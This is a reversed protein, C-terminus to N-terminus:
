QSRTPESRHPSQRKNSRCLHTMCLPFLLSFFPPCPSVNNYEDRQIGNGYQYFFQSAAVWRIQLDLDNLLMKTSIVSNLPDMWVLTAKLPLSSDSVTVTYTIRNGASISHETVVIKLNEEIGSYPLINKLSVRGFGQYM